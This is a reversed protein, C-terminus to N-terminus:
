EGKTFRGDEYAAGFFVQVSTLQDGRFTFFETNRSEKGDVTVLRYLVFAEDGEEFIKELDHERIRDSNPWCREFYTARDIADDLPSTFTFDDALAQEIVQRDKNRFAAFYTRLLDAKSTGPM